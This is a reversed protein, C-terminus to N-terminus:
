NSNKDLWNLISKLKTEVERTNHALHSGERKKTTWVKTKSVYDELNQRTGDEM